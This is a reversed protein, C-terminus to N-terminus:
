RTLGILEQMKEDMNGIIEVNKEEAEATRDAHATLEETIASITQISDVIIQNATKLQDMDQVLTDVNDRIEISNTKIAEFSSETEMTSQKEEDIGEIMQYIVTVVEEIANSINEIITTISNTAGQTQTAMASIETAVVAFGRGAEGARAAEISANLSLLATQSTIGSILEIITHMEEIYKNLTKLKAAVDEGNKVSVEVKQSLVGVSNSGSELAELTKKMNNSINEMSTDIIQISHIIAETQANQEQVSNATDMAGQAVESMAEKTIKSADMLGLLDDNMRNIGEEMKSALLEARSQAEEVREVKQLSNENLTRATMVSYIGVLIVVVVEIIAADSGLYGFAGNKAGIISVAVCEIIVGANIKISYKIDNYIAIVMLMPIVFAFVMANISTFMIFTYFVAFGYAVLHKIMANERDRKWYYYEAAVPAFGLIVAVIAYWWEQLGSASQLICFVIMIAVDIFHATMALKNNRELESVVKM